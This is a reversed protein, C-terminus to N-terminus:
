PLAGIQGLDIRYRAMIAALAADRAKEGEIRRWDAEVEARVEAFPPLDSPIVASVRVLHAGFASTVPGTWEGLPLSALQLFVGTGFSGDVAARRAETMDEPLLSPMGLGAPDAGSRLAAQAAALDGPGPEGLFVQRFSIGAPVQYAARTAEYHALLEAEAPARVAGPNALLFEAKQRLRVRIVPDDRDLGLRLAERYLVEEELHGTILTRLEEATPDRNWTARFQVRLRDADSATLTIEDPPPPAPPAVVAHLAFIAVGAILFGLLPERLLLKLRAPLRSGAAVTAV